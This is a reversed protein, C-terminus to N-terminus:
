RSKRTRPRAGADPAPRDLKLLTEKVRDLVALTTALEDDGVDDLVQERLARSLREVEAMVPASGPALHLRWCRRDGPDARREVYGAGQLRDIVRGLSIPDAELREALESQTQGPRAGISKLARWQVRTLSLHAVRRDFERRLLRTVDVMSTTFQARDLSNM